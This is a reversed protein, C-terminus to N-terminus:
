KSIFKFDHHVALEFAHQNCEVVRDGCGAYLCINGFDQQFVEFLSAYNSIKVLMFGLVNSLLGELDVIQTAAAESVM